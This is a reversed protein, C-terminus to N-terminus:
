NKDLFELSKFLSLPNSQNKGLMKENPGHDPSVRIFPLGLTINIANYEYLTKIPTLVQDHYMGVIVNYKKRNNKLFITDAPHPGSISYKKKKMKKIIPKIIKEDENFKDISECHPNLGLVAIRPKFDFNKIYFNNILFVKEKINKSNIKKIVYKLPLHTTIPCVSLKKNYILMANKKSKFKNSIFETVGLYKRKLFYKKSIPGNIIKKTFGSRIIKFGTDFSKNIYKSSKISIKDFAIKQDYKIDILNIFKNDLKYKPLKKLELIKVKKKFKLKKMQLYLLKKSAILIIPSKIKQIKISKFFIELFISNPEGAILLIPKYNM